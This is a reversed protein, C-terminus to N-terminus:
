FISLVGVLILATRMYHHALLYDKRTHAIIMASVTFPLIYYMVGLRGIVLIITAVLFCTTVLFGSDRVGIVAPYTPIGAAFDGRYDRMDALISMGFIILFIVLLSLLGRLQIPGAGYSGFLYM